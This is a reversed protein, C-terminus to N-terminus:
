IKGSLGKSIMQYALFTIVIAFLIRLIGTKATFLFKAGLLSGALVGLVIPM